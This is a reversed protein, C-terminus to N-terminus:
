SRGGECARKLAVLSAWWGKTVYREVAPVVVKEAARILHLLLLWRAPQIQVRQFLLGPQRVAQPPFPAIEDVPELRQGVVRKLEPQSPLATTAQLLAVLLESLADAGFDPGVTWSLWWPPGEKSPAIRAFRPPSYPPLARVAEWRRRGQRVWLAM